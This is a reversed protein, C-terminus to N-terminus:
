RPQSAKPPRGRKKPTLQEDVIRALSLMCEVLYRSHEQAQSTLNNPIRGGNKARRIPEGVDPDHKTLIDTLETLAALRHAAISGPNAM